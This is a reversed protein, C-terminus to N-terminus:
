RCGSSSDEVLNIYNLQDSWSLPLKESNVPSIRRVRQEPADATTAEDDINAKYVAPDDDLRNKYLAAKSTELGHRTEYNIDSEIYPREEFKADTEEDHLTSQINELGLGSTEIALRQRRVAIALRREMECLNQKAQEVRSESDLVDEERAEMMLGETRSDPSDETESDREHHRRRSARRTIKAQPPSPSDQSKKRKQPM